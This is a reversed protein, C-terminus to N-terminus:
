PKLKAHTWLWQEPYRRIWRELIASCETMIARVDDEYRGTRELRVEPGISVHWTGDPQLVAFGPVIPAGTRLALVALSDAAFATRGFFPVPLGSREPRQDILLTVFGGCRLSKLASSVAGRKSVVDMGEFRRLRTLREGLLPNDLPNAVAVSPAGHHGAALRLLEWHGFHGSFGLLGRGRMLAARLHEVGEVRVRGGALDDALRASAVTEVMVRGFHRMSQRALRKIARRDLESGYALSINREAARRHRGGVIWFGYGIFSGIALRARGPALGVLAAAIDFLTAEFRWRIRTRMRVPRVSAEEPSM